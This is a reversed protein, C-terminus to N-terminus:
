ANTGPTAARRRLSRRQSDGGSGAIRPFERRAAATRAGPSNRQQRTGRHPRRSRRTPRADSRAPRSRGRLCGRAAPRPPCRLWALRRLRLAGEEGDFAEFHGAVRQERRRLHLLFEFREPTRVPREGVDLLRAVCELSAVLCVAEEGDRDRNRLLGDFRADHAELHEFRPEAPDLDLVGADVPEALLAHAGPQAVGYGTGHQPLAVQLFVHHAGVAAGVRADPRLERRALLRTEDVDREDDVVLDGQVTREGVRVVVRAPEGSVRM